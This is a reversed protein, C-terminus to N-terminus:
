EIEETNHKKSKKEKKDSAFIKIQGRKLLFDAKEQDLEVAQGHTVRGVIPNYGERGIWRYLITM